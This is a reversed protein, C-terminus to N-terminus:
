GPDMSRMSPRPIAAHIHVRGLESSADRVPHRAETRSQPRLPPSTGAVLSLAIAFWFVPHRIILTAAGYIALGCLLTTLGALRARFAYLFVTSLLWMLALVAILGGQVFLDLLTNHAEFNPAFTPEPHEVYKPHDKAGERGAVISSPIELHPGPGLGLMGSEVGRMFAQSWLAVRLETKHETVEYDERSIEKAVSRAETSILPTLPAASILILPVTLVAIWACVFRMSFGPEFSFLWTRLKLAVFIPGSVVLILSFSDTMTLRGVYIPLVACAVAAIRHAPRAATDALHISLLGLVTCLVALQHPNASWGRLQDWWWPDVLPISFLEWANALQLALFPAGLM